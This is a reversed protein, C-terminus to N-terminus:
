PQEGTGTTLEKFVMGSPTREAGPEKAAKDAFEEGKKKEVDAREEQRKRMLQNVRPGYQELEVRPKQGSAIDTFGAQVYSLDTPSLKLNAVGTRQGIIVGLAYLTKHEDTDLNVNSAGGGGGRMQNCAPLALAFVCAFLAPRTM